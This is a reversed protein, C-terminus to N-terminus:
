KSEATAHVLAKFTMKAIDLKAQAENNLKRLTNLQEDSDITAAIVSETPKKAGDPPCALQLFRKAKATRYAQEAKDAETYLVKLENARTEIESPTM